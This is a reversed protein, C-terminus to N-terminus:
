PAVPRPRGHLYDNVLVTAVKHSLYVYGSRVARIADVLEEFGCGESLYGSVGAKLMRVVCKKESRMSFAIIKVGKLMSTIQRTTEVGNSDRRRMGMLVIDPRLKESLHIATVSDQVEGVVEMDHQKKLFQRLSDRITRLEHVLLIRTSMRSM